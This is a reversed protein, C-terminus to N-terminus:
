LYQPCRAAIANATQVSSLPYVTGAITVTPEAEVVHADTGAAVIAEAKSVGLARLECYTKAALNPLIKAHAPAGALTLAGAVALCALRTLTM